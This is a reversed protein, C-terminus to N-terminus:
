EITYNGGGQNIIKVSMLKEIFRFTEEISIERSISLTIIRNENKITDSLEIKVGYWLAIDNMVSTFNYDAYRFYGSRWSIYNEVDVDKVISKNMKIDVSIMQNPKIIIESQNLLKVGVLGTILTTEINNEHMSNINFETGYVKVRVDNIRVVFPVDSKRVKFYAEGELKVERINGAFNDPYELISNANLYVETGDCLTISYNYKKPIILRNNKTAKNDSAISETYRLTNNIKRIILNDNKVININMSELDIKNGDSLVLIPKEIDVTQIASDKSKDYYLLTSIVVVAAALSAITIRMLSVKRRRSKSEDLKQYFSNINKDIKNLEGHIRAFENEDSIKSILDSSYKNRVVFSSLKEAGEKTIDGKIAHIVENTIEQSENYNEIDKNKMIFLNDRIDIFCSFM